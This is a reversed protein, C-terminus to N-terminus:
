WPIGIVVNLVNEWSLPLSTPANNASISQAQKLWATLKVFNALFFGPGLSM